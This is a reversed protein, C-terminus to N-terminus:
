DQMVATLVSNAREFDFESLAAKYIQSFCTFGLRISSLPVLANGAVGIANAWARYHILWAEVSGNRFHGGGIVYKCLVSAHLSKM